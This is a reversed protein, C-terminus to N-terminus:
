CLIKGTQTLPLKGSKAPWGVALTGCIRSIDPVFDALYSYVNSFEREHLRTMQRHLIATIEQAWNHSRGVLAHTKRCKWAESPETLAILVSTVDDWREPMQVPSDDKYSLVWNNGHIEREQQFQIRIQEEEEEHLPQAAQELQERPPYPGTASRKRQSAVYDEMARRFQLVRM